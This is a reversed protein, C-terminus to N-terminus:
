RDGIPQATSCTSLWAGTATLFRAAVLPRLWEIAAAQIWWAGKGRGRPKLTM